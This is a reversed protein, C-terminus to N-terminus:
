EGPNIEQGFQIVYGNNDYIAFERMGYDFDEIPYCIKAKQNVKEWIEDVSDTNIYLSGTFIPKDFPIHDNPKSIMIEIHELQVMALDSAVESVLCEFGLVSEYFDATAQVDSTYIVPTLSNIKM